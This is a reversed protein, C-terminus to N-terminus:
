ISHTIPARVAAAEEDAEDAARGAEADAEQAGAAADAAQQAAAEARAAADEGDAPEEQRDHCKFERCQQHMGCRM